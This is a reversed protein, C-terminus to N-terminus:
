IWTAGKRCPFGANGGMDSVEFKLFTATTM